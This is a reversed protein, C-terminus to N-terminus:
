STEVTSRYMVGKTKHSNQQSCTGSNCYQCVVSRNNNCKSAHKVRDQSASTHRQAHAHRVRDIKDTENFDKIEGQEIHCLLVAHSAKAWSCFFDNLDDLLSILYDLM